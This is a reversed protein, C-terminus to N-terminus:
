MMVVVVVGVQVLNRGLVAMFAFGALSSALASPTKYTFSLTLYDKKGVM